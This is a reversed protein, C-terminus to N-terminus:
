PKSTVVNKNKEKQGITATRMHQPLVQMGVSWFSPLDGGEHIYSFQTKANLIQPDNSEDQKTFFRM